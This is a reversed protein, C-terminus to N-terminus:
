LNKTLENLLLDKFKHFTGVEGYGGAYLRRSVLLGGEASEVTVEVYSPGHLPTGGNGTKFVDFSAKYGIKNFRRVLAEASKELNTIGGAISECTPYTNDM